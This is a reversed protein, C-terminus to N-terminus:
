HYLKSDITVVVVELWGMGIESGRDGLCVIKRGFGGQALDFM